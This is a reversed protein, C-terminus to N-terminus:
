LRFVLRLRFVWCALVQQAMQGAIVASGCGMLVLVLTGLFEASFKSFKSTEM